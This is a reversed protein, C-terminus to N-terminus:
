PFARNRHGAALCNVAEWIRPLAFQLVANPARNRTLFIAARVRRMTNKAREKSTFSGQPLRRSSRSSTLFNLRGKRSCPILRLITPSQRMERTAHERRPSLRSEFRSSSAKLSLISCGGTGSAKARQAHAARNETGQGFQFEGHRRFNLRQQDGARQRAHVQEPLRPRSGAFGGRKADRQQGLALLAQGRLRDHQHRCALQRHLHIGLELAEPLERRDARQGDIAPLLDRGLHFEELVVRLDEDARRPRTM